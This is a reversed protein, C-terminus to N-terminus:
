ENLKEGCFPCYNIKFDLYGSDKNNTKLSILLFNNNYIEIKATDFDDGGYIEGDFNKIEKKCQCM